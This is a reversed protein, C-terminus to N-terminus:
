DEPAAEIPGVHEEVAPRLFPQAPVGTAGEEFWGAKFNMAGVRGRFGHGTMAVDGYVSTHLDQGGTAPDDPALDSARRAAPEVVQELADRVGGSRLLAAEFGPDLEFRSSV